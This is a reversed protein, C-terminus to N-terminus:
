ATPPPVGEDLKEASDAVDAAVEAKEADEEKKEESTGNAEGSAPEGAEIQKEEKSEGAGVVKEKLVAVTSSSGTVLAKVAEVTAAPGGAEAIL